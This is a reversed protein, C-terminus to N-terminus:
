IETIKGDTVIICIPGLFFQAEQYPHQETAHYHRIGFVIGNSFQVGFGFRKMKEM